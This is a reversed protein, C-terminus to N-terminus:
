LVSRHGMRGPLAAGVGSRPRGRATRAHSASAHIAAVRVALVALGSGAGGIGRAMGAQASLFACGMWAMCRVAVFCRPQGWQTTSRVLFATSHPRLCRIEGLLARAAAEFLSPEMGLATSAHRLEEADDLRELVWGLKVVVDAGYAHEAKVLAADPFPGRHLALMGPDTADRYATARDQGLDANGLLKETIRDAIVLRPVGLARDPRGELHIRSERVIEFLLPIGQAAIIGRNGYQDDMALLVAAVARHEPRLEKYRAPIVTDTGEM